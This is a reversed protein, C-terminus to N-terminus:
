RRWRRCPRSGPVPGASYFFADYGHAAEFRPFATATRRATVAGALVLGVVVATLLTLALWSRWRHRTGTQLMLRLFSLPGGPRWHSGPAQPQELSGAQPRAM